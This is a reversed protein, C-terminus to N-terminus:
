PAPGPPPQEPQNTGTHHYHNRLPKQAPDTWPPPHVLPHRRPTPHALPGPPDPPPPLPCPLTGNDLSTTGGHQRWTIHHAETWPAPITCGPFACGRDRATLARRRMAPTLLRRARGLDLVEGDGGLVAPILDADCAIRRITGAGIPGTFAARGTGGAQQKLDNYGTAALVQPRRGGTDPLGGAALAARCAGVLGELLQQARPHRRGTRATPTRPVKRAPPAAQTRPM